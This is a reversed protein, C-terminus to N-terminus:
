GGIARSSRCSYEWDFDSGVGCYTRNWLSQEERWGTFGHSSHSLWVRFRHGFQHLGISRNLLFQCTSVPVLQDKILELCMAHMHPASITASFGIPQPADQYPSRCDRPCFKARDVRRMAQLVRESTILGAAKLNEVLGQNSGAGCLWAM